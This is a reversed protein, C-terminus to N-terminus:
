DKIEIEFNNKSEDTTIEDTSNPDVNAFGRNPNFTPTVTVPPVSPSRYPRRRTNRIPVTPKVM